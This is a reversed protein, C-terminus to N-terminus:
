KQNNIITRTEGSIKWRGMENRNTGGNNDNDLALLYRLFPINWTFYTEVRYYVGMGDNNKAKGSDIQTIKIGDQCYALHVYADQGQTTCDMSNTSVRYNLEGLLEKEFYATMAESMVANQGAVDVIENDELYDIVKNKVKFAKAYNLAIATFFMYIFIFVLFLRIMFAGGFADRM